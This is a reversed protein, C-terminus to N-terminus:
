KLKKGYQDEKRTLQERIKEYSMNTNRRKEEEQKLAFRLSGLELELEVKQHELQSKVEKTESLEKQLGRVKSKMKYIKGRLLECHSRQFDVLREYSFIADRIKLLSGFDKCGVDLPEVQLTSITSYLVDGDESVTESSQTLDDLDNVYNIQEKVKKKEHPTIRAPRDDSQAVERLISDDNVHLLGGTLSDTKEFLPSIM